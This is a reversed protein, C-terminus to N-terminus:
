TRIPEVTFFLTILVGAFAFAAVTLGLMQFGLTVDAYLNLVVGAVAIGVATGIGRFASALSMATGRVQPVQELMLNSAAALTVGILASATWHLVQWIWLDRMFYSFLVLLGALFLPVMTLRKRGVRNVVHGGIVAGVTIFATGVLPGILSAFGASVSFVQILFTVEFVASGFGFANGFFASALCAVASKNTLVHKFGKMFPEKRFNLQLEPTNHPFALFVFILSFLATPLMFWVLSSRWGGVDTMFGIIPAGVAGALTGAAVVWGIAKAKKDLPYSNGIFTQAMVVIMVSGVGNFLVVFQVLQFTPALFLGIDYLVIFLIGMMVLLKYRFRTGVGALLLATVVSVIAIFSNLQGVTGPRVSFTEAINVTTIPIVGDIVAAAFVAVLLAVVFIKKPSSQELNSSTITM